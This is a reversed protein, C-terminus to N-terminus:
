AGAGEIARVLAAVQEAPMTAPLRMFRGGRLDIVVGTAPGPRVAELVVAPM